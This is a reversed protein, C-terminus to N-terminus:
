FLVFAAAVGLIAVAMSIRQLTRLPASGYEDVRVSAIFAVPAVVLAALTGIPSYAFAALVALAIAGLALGGVLENPENRRHAVQM